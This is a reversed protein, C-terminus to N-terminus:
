ALDRINKRSIVLKRKNVKILEDIISKLLVKNINKRILRAGQREDFSNNAVLRIVDDPIKINYGKQKFQQKLESVQKKAIKYLALQDLRDFIIIHELRNLLEPRLYEKLSDMIEPHINKPSTENDLCFGAPASNFKESGINSTLIILTNNFNTIRGQSDTIHGEELIQLLLDLIKSHAKEIEDFLILSYPNKRVRETLEGGEEFGIYGPPSGILRSITHPQNFESMDFRVFANPNKFLTEAIIKATYTKGSGTAGIFLMSCLPRNHASVNFLATKLANIIHELQKKQGIIKKRLVADLEKVLTINEQLDLIDHVKVGSILSVVKKIDGLKISHKPLRSGKTASHFAKQNLGKRIERIRNEIMVAKDYDEKQIAKIKKNELQNIKIQIRKLKALPDKKITKLAVYSYIQDLLDIAKDPLKRDTIYREAYEVVKPILRNSLKLPRQAELREKLAQLLSITNEKTMEELYITNFRRNLARDKEFFKRYEEFTTAGILQISGDTLAPKILNAVDLSGQSSGAGILNHIEDIFLIVESSRAEKFINHIRSELDGRFITGAVIHGLNLMFIKKNLMSLPVKGDAIKRALGYVLATKGVGADGVILVNNRGTKLLSMILLNIERGRKIIPPLNKTTVMQVLETAFTKLYKYNKSNNKLVENDTETLKSPIRLFSHLNANHSIIDELHSKIQEIKPPKLQCDFFIRMKRIEDPNKKLKELTALLLHETGIFNYQYILALSLARKITNQVNKSFRKKLSKIPLKQHITPKTRLTRYGGEKLSVVNHIFLVNSALSGKELALASFIHRLEVEDEAILNVLQMASRVRSDFRNIITEPLMFIKNM